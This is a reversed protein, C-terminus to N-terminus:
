SDSFAVKLPRRFNPNKRPGYFMKQKMNNRKYNHTNLFTNNM